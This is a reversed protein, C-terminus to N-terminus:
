AIVGLPSLRDGIEKFEVERRAASDSKVKVQDLQALQVVAAEQPGVIREGERQHRLHFVSAALSDPQFGVEEAQNQSGAAVGSTLAQQDLEHFGVHRQAGGFLSLEGLQDLDVFGISLDFM